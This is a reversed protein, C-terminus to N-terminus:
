KHTEKKSGRKVIARLNNLLEIKVGQRKMMISQQIISLTNNWAWYIVLGAPFSALMFTFVVPMWTFIMAQTPDAPSPNMQMQLFMTIGMILPWVGLVLFTPVAYPLLGFLNFISTPDPAALDQIWGFFPAHRMEITIYLVKYLAFFIPFQILIPWCGALPNINQTKYLEIIAQQQKVRDDAYKEKIESMMPQVLKMRAMSKYSKNALPFLLTKLLVTVLLIAIGFNGTQKYLIDILAFMPKTIFDFWGWDILLGFKNINLQDQYSNIIEVQKAGAFLHNTITKTEHPAITLLAGLLDSQYHTNLQDFYIFRSTYEEDQPPVIAVAWYKDTIGIWGGTAKSFIVSKQGNDPNPSLEALAKYKETKLSDGVVGIMGEHLLYTANAHEPPAARAVRAYPSLHISSDSENRISDEITFMYHDDVSLTRRFIQGQGNNYVLVVPTSPTLTANNGELQWQTDSQPLTKAALSSSTFGFEALYTTTFGNPNLLAIKPSKKDVTLHYKKLLLDDFQAGILNISGELESTKIAIRNTKALEASRIEPTMPRDAVPQAASEPAAKSSPAGTVPSASNQKSLEQAIMRTQQLKAQYPAVYLFHWAAFVVFSLGIAIFFNRNYEM